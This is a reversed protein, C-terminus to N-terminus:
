FFALWLALMNCAIAFLWFRVVVKDESWGVIEFHHHLPAMQLVRRGFVRRSIAQVITSLTEILFPLAAIILLVPKGISFAIICILGGLAFSGTDGMQVRAPKINFYLYTSLAGLATAAFIATSYLNTVFAIATLSYLTIVGMGGALGDMGDSINVSNVTAMYTIVAFPIIFWGIDFTGIFPIWMLGGYLKFFWIGLVAGILGQILLKEHARLGSGPSSEFAHMIGVFLFWPFFVIYRLRVWFSKHVQILKIVRDVTKFKRAKGFINLLDDAAGLAGTLTFLLLPIATFINLNFILTVIIITLIFILGGMIPTGYKTKREAILTSFDVEIKRVVKAKYLLSIIPVAILGGIILSILAITVLNHFQAQM